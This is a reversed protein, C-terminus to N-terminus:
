TDDTPTKQITCATSPLRDEPKLSNLLNFEKMTPPGEMDYETSPSDNNVCVATKALDIEYTVQSEILFHFQWNGNITSQYATPKTIPVSLKNKLMSHSRSLFASSRPSRSHRMMGLTMNLTLTASDLAGICTDVPKYVGTFDLQVKQLETTLPDVYSVIHRTIILAITFGFTQFSSYLGNIDGRQEPRLSMDDWLIELADIVWEMDQIRVLGDFLAQKKASFFSALLDM